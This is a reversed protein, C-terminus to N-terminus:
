AIGDVPLFHVIDIGQQFGALDILIRASQLVAILQKQDGVVSRGDATHNEVMQHQNGDLQSFQLFRPLIIPLKHLNRGMVAQFIGHLIIEALGAPRIVAGQDANQFLQLLMIKKLVPSVLQGTQIVLGSLNLLADLEAVLNDEPEALSGIHLARQFQLHEILRQVFLLFVFVAM